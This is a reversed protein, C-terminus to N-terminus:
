VKQMVNAHDYLIRKSLLVAPGPIKRDGYEWRQYSRLDVGLLLAIERQSVKLTERIQAMEEASMTPLKSMITSM